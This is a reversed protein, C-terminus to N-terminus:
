FLNLDEINFQYSFLTDFFSNVDSEFAGFKTGSLNLEKLVGPHTLPIWSDFTNVCVRDFLNGSLNLIEIHKPLNHIIKMMLKPSIRNNSLDILKKGEFFKINNSIAEAYEDSVRM